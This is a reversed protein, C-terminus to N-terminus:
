VKFKSYMGTASTKQDFMKVRIILDTSSPNSLVLVLEVLGSDEYVSYTSQEFNVFTATISICASLALIMLQTGKQSTTM